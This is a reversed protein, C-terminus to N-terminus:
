REGSAGNPGSPAGTEVVLDDVVASVGPASWAVGRAVKREAYSGVKGTLTVTGDKVHVAIHRVEREAHRRMADEINRSIEESAVKRRVEIANTLGRIGRMQGVARAVVHRQYAWDVVGTLTVWGKEVQIKIADNPVAVSWYLIAHVASAVDEDSHEDPKPLRVQLDVAVAKVGAVRQAAKEAALKEALSPPHGSLTVVGNTVEVGIDTATVAPDWELEEEVELKLQRDTKM